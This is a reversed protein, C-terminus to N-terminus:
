KKRQYWGTIFLGFGTAPIGILDVIGLVTKVDTLTQDRIVLHFTEGSVLNRTIVYGNTKPEVSDLSEINIIEFNKPITLTFSLLNVDASAFSDNNFRTTSYSGDFTYDCQYTDFSTRHLFPTSDFASGHFLNCIAIWEFFTDNEIFPSVIAIDPNNM